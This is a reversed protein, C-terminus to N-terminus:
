DKVNFQKKMKNVSEKYKEEKRLTALVHEFYEIRVKPDEPDDAMETDQKALDLHQQISDIVERRADALGKEYGKDYAEQLRKSWKPIDNQTSNSMNPYIDMKQSDIIKDMSENITEEIEVDHLGCEPCLITKSM